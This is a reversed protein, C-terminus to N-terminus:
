PSSPPAGSRAPRGSKAAEAPRALVIFRHPASGVYDFPYCTVLTLAEEGTSDLVEVAEPEVVSIGEVAYEFTARPTTIRIADGKRVGALLRFFTDRHAALCVNGNQGPLATEPVHGVARALTRDDVGERIIAALGLRPIEIRGVLGPDVTKTDAVPGLSAGSRAGPAGTQPWPSEPSRNEARIQALAREGSRQYSVAGYYAFGCWGLLGIATIWLLIEALRVLSRVRRPTRECRPEPELRVLTAM